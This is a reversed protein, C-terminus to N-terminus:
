PVGAESVEDRDGRLSHGPLLGDVRFCSDFVNSLRDGGEDLSIRLDMRRRRRATAQAGRTCSSGAFVVMWVEWPQRGVMSVRDSATMTYPTPLRTGKSSRRAEQRSRPYVVCKM